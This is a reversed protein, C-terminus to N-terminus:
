LTGPIVDYVALVHVDNKENERWITPIRQSTVTVTYRTHQQHSLLRLLESTMKSRMKKELDLFM